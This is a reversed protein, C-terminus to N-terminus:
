SNANDYREMAGSAKGIETTGAGESAGAADIDGTAVATDGNSIETVANQAEAAARSYDTLGQGYDRRVGAVCAPPLNAEAANDDSQLSAAASQLAVEDASADAGSELDSGLNTAATGVDGLDSEIANLQTMGGGDRWSILQRGAQDKL